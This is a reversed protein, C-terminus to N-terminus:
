TWVLVHTQLMGLDVMKVIVMEFTRQPVHYFHCMVSIFRLIGVEYKTTIVHENKIM